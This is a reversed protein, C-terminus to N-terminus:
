RDGLCLAFVRNFLRASEELKENRPASSVVDDSLDSSFTVPKSKALHEDADIAFLRLHNAARHLVMVVWHPLTGNQLYKILNNVGEKWTDFIQLLQRDELKHQNRAEEARLIAGVAKWYSVFIDTWANSEKPSLRGVKSFKIAYRIDSEVQHENSARVFEYLRGPNDPPPVPSLAESVWGPSQAAHAEHFIALAAQM